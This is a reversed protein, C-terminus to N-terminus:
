PLQVNELVFPVEVFVAKPGVVVIKAPLGVGARFTFQMTQINIMGDDSLDTNGSTTVPFPKGTADFAQVSRGLAPNQPAEPWGPNFGVNCGRRRANVVWPSPYEFQIRVLGQGGAAPAERVDLVTVKLENPGEYIKGSNKKLDAITVLHQHLLNMEGYVSGELRKLSKATATAVKVPVPVVRPNPITDPMIVNGNNDFRVAVGPRAFVVMGSPDFAPLVNKEVGGAGVRGSSDIVRSVKVGIVEQWNLGPAPTVDLCLSYDGSGLTVKHGSFGPPLAVVRVATSREGPLRDPKGDMLVIAVSDARPDPPPVFGGRRPIHQKPVELDNVFLERLGAAQCFTEVTEWIPLDPTECSIKRLPNAVRTGDLVIPLGTRARLDNIATGLPIDKYDLKLRKPALRSTSDVTRKLRVALVSARERVEPNESRAAAQLAPLAAAGLKELAASAAERDAYHESGLREILAQIAAPQPTPTPAGSDGSAVALGVAVGCAALVALAALLRKM